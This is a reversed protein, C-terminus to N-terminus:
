YSDICMLDFINQKQEYTSRNLSHNDDEVRIISSDLDFLHEGGETFSHCYLTKISINNDAHICSFNIQTVSNIVM